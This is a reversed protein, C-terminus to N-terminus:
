DLRLGRICFWYLCWTCQGLFIGTFLNLWQNKLCNELLLLLQHINLRLSAMFLERWHNESSICSSHLLPNLAMEQIFYSRHLPSGWPLSISWSNTFHFNFVHKLFYYTVSLLQKTYIVLIICNIRHFLM